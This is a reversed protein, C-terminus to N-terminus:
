DREGRGGRSRQGRALLVPRGELLEHELVLTGVSRIALSFLAVFDEFFVELADRLAVGAAARLVPHVFEGVQRRFFELFAVETERRRRAEAVDSAARLAKRRVCELRDWRHIPPGGRRSHNGRDLGYVIAYMDVCPIM